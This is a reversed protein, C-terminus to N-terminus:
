IRLSYPRRCSTVTLRRAFSSRFPAPQRLDTSSSKETQRYKSIKFTKSATTKSPIENGRRPVARSRERTAHWKMVIARPWGRWLGAKRQRWIPASVTKGIWPFRSARGVPWFDYYYLLLVWAMLFKPHTSYPAWAYFGSSEPTWEFGFRTFAGKRSFRNKAATASTTFFRSQLCKRTSRITCARRTFRWSM